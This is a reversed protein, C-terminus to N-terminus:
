APSQENIAVNYFSCNELVKLRFIQMDQITADDTDLMAFPYRSLVLNGIQSGSYFAYRCGLNKALM